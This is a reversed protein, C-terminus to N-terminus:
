KPNLVQLQEYNSLSIAISRFYLATVANSDRVLFMMRADAVRSLTVELANAPAQTVTIGEGWVGTEIDRQAYFVTGAVTTWAVM